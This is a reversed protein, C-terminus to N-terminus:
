NIESLLVTVLPRIGIGCIGGLGVDNFDCYATSTGNWPLLYTISNFVVAYVEGYNSEVVSGLWYTTGYLWDPNGKNNKLDIAQSYSMLTATASSAINKLYTEYESVYPYLYNGEYNGYVFEPDIIFESNGDDYWYMTNSFDIQGYVASATSAKAGIVHEDQKGYTSSNPYRYDGINLNYMSLMQVNKKDNNVVYFSETGCTVVDSLSPIYDGDKDILTCPGDGKRLIGYTYDEVLVGNVTCNALFFTGDKYLKEVKCSVEGKYDIKGNLDEFSEPYEGSTNVQYSTIATEVASAYLDISRELSKQKSDNILNIVIPVAILSIIALIVIVALLEVLTFGNRKM